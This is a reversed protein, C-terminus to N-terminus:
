YYESVDTLHSFPLSFVTLGVILAIIYLALVGVFIWFSVFGARSWSEQVAKFTEIDKYEGTKWAWENGKAGLIFIFVFNFCPILSLLAIWTRTGIGWYFGFMFAGWNWKRIEPPAEYQQVPYPQQYQQGPYSQYPPDQQYQQYQQNPPYPQGPGGQQSQQNPDQYYQDSM